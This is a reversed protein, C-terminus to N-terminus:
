SCWGASSTPGACLSWCRSSPATATVPWMRPDVWWPRWFDSRDQAMVDFTIPGDVDATHGHGRREPVLVRFREALADLNHEFFRADVLGGHLLILPVGEGREEYWTSLAGVRVYGTM